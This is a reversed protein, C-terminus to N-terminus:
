LFGSANERGRFNKSLRCVCVYHPKLLSAIIYNGSHKVAINRLMEPVAPGKGLRILKASWKDFSAPGKFLIRLCGSSFCKKLDRLLLVLQQKQVNNNLMAVHSLM